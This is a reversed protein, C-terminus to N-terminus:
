YNCCRCSSWCCPCEDYPGIVPPVYSNERDDSDRSKPDDILKLARQKMNHIKNQHSERKTGRRYRIDYGGHFKEPIEDWIYMVRHKVKKECYDQKIQVYIKYPENFLILEEKLESNYNEAKPDPTRRIIKFGELEFVELAVELDTRDDKVRKWPVAEEVQANRYNPIFSM